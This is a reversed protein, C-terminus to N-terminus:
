FRQAEASYLYNMISQISNVSHLIWLRPFSKETPPAFISRGTPSAFIPSFCDLCDFEFALKICYTNKSFPTDPAFGGSDPSNELINTSFTVKCDSLNSKVTLQLFIPPATHVLQERLLKIPPAAWSSGSSGRNERPHYTLGSINVPQIRGNTPNPQTQDPGTTCNEFFSM